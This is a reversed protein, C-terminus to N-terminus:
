NDYVRCIDTFRQRCSPCLEQLSLVIAHDTACTSCIDKHGCPYFLHTPPESMCIVCDAARQVVAAGGFADGANLNACVKSPMPQACADGDGIVGEEVVVAPPVRDVPNGARANPAVVDLLEQYNQPYCREFVIWAAWVLPGFFIALLLWLAIHMHRLMRRRVFRFMYIANMVDLVVCLSVVARLGTPTLIPLHNCQVADADSASCPACSVAGSEAYFGDPCRLASAMHSYPCYDGPPCEDCFSNDHCIPSLTGAPCSVCSNNSRSFFCGPCCGCAGCDCAGPAPASTTFPPAASPTPQPVATSPSV